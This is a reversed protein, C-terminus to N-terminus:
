DRRGLVTVLTDLRCGVRTRYPPSELGAVFQFVPIRRFEFDVRLDGHLSQM